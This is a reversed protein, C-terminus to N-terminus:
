MEEGAQLRMLQPITVDVLVDPVDRVPTRFGCIYTDHNLRVAYEWGQGRVKQRITKGAVTTEREEMRPRKFTNLIMDAAPVLWKVVSKGCAPGVTTQVVGEDGEDGGKGTLVKEQGVVVTHMPLSFFERLFTITKVGVEGYQQLTAMGWSKAVPIEELGLVEKLLLDGLGTVHDLVAFDYGGTRAKHLLESLETVSQINEPTIRARNAPTNISKLEGSVRGGSCQLWIGRGELTSVLTTKGSKPIGYVM